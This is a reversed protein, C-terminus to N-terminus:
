YLKVPKKLGGGWKGEGGKVALIGVGGKHSFDTLSALFKKDVNGLVASIFIDRM